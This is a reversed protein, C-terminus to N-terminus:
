LSGAIRRRGFWGLMALGCLMMTISSPEPVFTGKGALTSPSIVYVDDIMIDKAYAGAGQFIFSINYTGAAWIDVNASYHVWTNAGSQALTQAASATAINVGAIAATLTADYPNGAGSGTVLLDFGVEYVGAALTASQTITDKASDDTFYLAHTGTHNVFAADPDPSTSYLNDANEVDGYQDAASGNTTVVSPGAGGAGTTTTWGTLGNEFTGNTVYNIATAHATQSMALAALLGSLILKGRM